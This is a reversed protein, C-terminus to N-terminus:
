NSITLSVARTVGAHGETQDRLRITFNFTGTETPTGSLTGTFSDLTLGEPLAGSDVTWYYAPIGGVAVFSHSIDENATGDPMSVGSISLPIFPSTERLKYGLSQALLIHLKTVLWRGNPTEDEYQAGFGGQGSAPDIADPTHPVDDLRPYSGFYARVAEDRVEMADYFKKFSGCGDLGLAHGVEHMTISYLDAKINEGSEAAWWPEHDESVVWDVSSYSGRPDFKMHGSRKIPLKQGGSSHNPGDCTSGASAGKKPNVYGYTAIWIGSYASGNRFYRDYPSWLREAGAPVEDLNMDAFYYAWDDAVQQVTARAAPDNFMGTSDNSADAIINFELPRDRDQDIVHVDVTQTRVQGQSNLYRMTLTHLEDATDRDPFIAIRFEATQGPGDVKLNKTPGNAGIASPLDFYMRSDNASLSASNFPLEATFKMLPNHIHGEWDVLVIGTDNVERGFIDRIIVDNGTAGDGATIQPCDPGERESIKLLWTQFRDDLPACLGTGEFAFDDMNPINVLTDPLVGLMDTNGRIDLRRLNRLQGIEPPLVSLNNRYLLLSEM